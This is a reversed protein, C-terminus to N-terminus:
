RPNQLLSGGMKPGGYFVLSYHPSFRIREDAEWTDNFRIQEIASQALYGGEEQNFSLALLNTNYENPGEGRRHVEELVQGRSDLVLFEETILDAALFHGNARNVDLVRINTERDVRISDVKELYYETQLMAGTNGNGGCAIIYWSLSILWVKIVFGTFQKKDFKKM